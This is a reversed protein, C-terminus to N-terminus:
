NFENKNYKRKRIIFLFALLICFVTFGYIAYDNKELKLNNESKIDKTLTIPSLTKNHPPKEENTKAYDTKAQEETEDNLEEIYEEENEQKNENICALGQNKINSLTKEAIGYANTLDDLTEYPRADVIAQAKAPGVGYIGDLEELSATNINIQEESCSASIIPLILLIALFLIIKKM